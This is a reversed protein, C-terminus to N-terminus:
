TTGEPKEVRDFEIPIFKHYKWTERARKGPPLFVPELGVNCGNFAFGLVRYVVGTTKRRWYSGIPILPDNSPAFEATM